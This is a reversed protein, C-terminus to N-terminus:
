LKIIILKNQRIHLYMWERVSGEVDDEYYRNSIVSWGSTKLIEFVRNELIYGTKQIEQEFKTFEM